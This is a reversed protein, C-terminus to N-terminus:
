PQPGSLRPGDQPFSPLHGERRFVCHSRLTVTSRDGKQVCRVILCGVRVRVQTALALCTHTQACARRVSSPLRTATLSLTLLGNPMLQLTPAPPAACCTEVSPLTPQKPPWCPSRWRGAALACTLITVLFARVRAAFRDPGVLCGARAHLSPPSACLRVRTQTCPRDPYHCHTASLQATSRPTRLPVARGQRGEAWALGTAGSFPGM